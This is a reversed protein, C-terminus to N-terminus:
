IFLGFNRGETNEKVTLLGSVVSGGNNYNLKTVKIPQQPEKVCFL